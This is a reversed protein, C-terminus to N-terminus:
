ATGHSLLNTAPRGGRLGPNSRIGIGTAVDDLAHTQQRESVPITPELTSGTAARDLAHTKPRESALIKPEFGVPPM